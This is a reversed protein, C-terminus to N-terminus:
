VISFGLSCILLMGGRKTRRNFSNACIQVFLVPLLNQLCYMWFGTSSMLAFTRRYGWIKSQASNASWRQTKRRGMWSCPQLNRLLLRNHAKLDAEAELSESSRAVDGMAALGDAMREAREKELMIRIRREAADEVSLPARPILELAPPAIIPLPLPFPSRPPTPKARSLGRRRHRHFVPTAPETPVYGGYSSATNPSPTSGDVSISGRSPIDPVVSLPSVVSTSRSSEIEHQASREYLAESRLSDARRLSAARQAYIRKPQMSSGHRTKALDTAAEQDSAPANRSFFRSGVTHVKRKKNKPESGPTGTTRAQLDRGSASTASTSPLEYHRLISRRRKTPNSSGECLPQREVSDEHRTYAPSEHENGSPTINMECCMDQPPSQFYTWYDPSQSHADQVDAVSNIPLTSGASGSLVESAATKEDSSFTVSAVSDGLTRLVYRPASLIGSLGRSVNASATDQMHSLGSGGPNGDVQPPTCDHRISASPLAKDETAQQEHQVVLLLEHLKIVFSDPSSSSSSVSSCLEDTAALQPEQTANGIAELKLASLTRGNGANYDTLIHTEKQGFSEDPAIKTVCIASLFPSSAVKVEDEDAYDPPTVAAPSSAIPSSSAPGQEQVEPMELEDDECHGLNLPVRMPSSHAFCSSPSGPSHLAPKIPIM